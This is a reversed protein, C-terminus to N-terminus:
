ENPSSQITFAELLRLGTATISLAQFVQWSFPWRNSCLMGYEM